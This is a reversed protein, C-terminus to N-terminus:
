MPPISWRNYANRRSWSKSHQFARAVPGVRRARWYFQKNEAVCAYVTGEDGAFYLHKGLLAPRSVVAGDARAKWDEFDQDLRFAYIRQDIGGLYFRLGESVAASGTPFHTELIQIPRGTYRDYQAVTPPTVFVTRNDAHCPRRIVYGATTVQKVWRIAGTQADIAYVYGDQTAAYVHDDVLYSAAIEQGPQLPLRLQWYTVLGAEHLGASDVFDGEGSAAPVSLALLPWVLALKQLM